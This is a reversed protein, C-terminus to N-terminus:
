RMQFGNIYLRENFGDWLAVPTDTKFSRYFAFMSEEAIDEESRDGDENVLRIEFDELNNLGDDNV